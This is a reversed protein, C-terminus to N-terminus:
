FFITAAKFYRNNLVHRFHPIFLIDLQFDFSLPQNFVSGAFDPFETDNGPM